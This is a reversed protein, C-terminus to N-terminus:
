TSLLRLNPVRRRRRFRRERRRLAAMRLMSALCILVLVVASPGFSEFGNWPLAMASLGALAPPPPIAFSPFM